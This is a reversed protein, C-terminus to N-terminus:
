NKKKEEMEAIYEQNEAEKRQKLEEELAKQKESEQERIKEQEKRAAEEEAREEEQYIMERRQKRVRERRNAMTGRVSLVILSIIFAFFSVIMTLSIKSGFMGVKDTRFWELIGRAFSFGALYKLFVEGSFRKKRSIGLIVLMLLLCWISEYLFLPHAQIYSVGDIDVLNKNMLETVEQGRVDTLPIQMAFISNTYEGFAERNFLNGWAAFVQSLLLGPTLTDLAEGFRIKAILCYVGVMLMGVLLGGYFSFGGGTVHYIDQVHNKYYDLHQLVYYARAGIVGGILALIIMGLYKNTSQHKRKAELVIVATGLMLSVALIIGYITIEYGFVNFAKPLYSINLNFNPFNINM